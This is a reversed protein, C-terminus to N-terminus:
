DEVDGKTELTRFEAQLVKIKAKDDAGLQQEVTNKRADLKELVVKAAKWDEDNWTNQKARVNEMFTIYASRLNAATITTIDAYSGLLEQQLQPKNQDDQVRIVAAEAKATTYNTAEAVFSFGMAAALMIKAYKKNTNKM